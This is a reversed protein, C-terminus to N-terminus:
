RCGARPGVVRDIADGKDTLTITPVNRTTQIEQALDLGNEKDLTLDLTILTVPHCELQAHLEAGNGAELM